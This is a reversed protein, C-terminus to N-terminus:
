CRPIYAALSIHRTGSHRLECFRGATNLSLAFIAAILIQSALNIYLRGGFLAPASVIRCAVCRRDWKM